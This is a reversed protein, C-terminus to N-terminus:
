ATLRAQIRDNAIGDAKYLGWLAQRGLELLQTM